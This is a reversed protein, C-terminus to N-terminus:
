ANDLLCCVVNTKAFRLVLNKIVESRSNYFDRLLKEAKAIQVQYNSRMEEYISKPLVGSKLLSDLEDQAAKATMLQAQWEEINQLPLSGQSLKLKKVFWPLSLGQGLISLLVTGFILAILQERGIFSAPLTLPIAM